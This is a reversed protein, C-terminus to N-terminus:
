AAPRSTASSPVLRPFLSCASLGMMGGIMASSAIMARGYWRALMCVPIAAVAAIVLSLFLWFLPKQTIHTFLYPLRTIAFIRSHPTFSCWSRSSYPSSGACASSSRAM